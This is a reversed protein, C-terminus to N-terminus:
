EYMLGVPFDRPILHPSCTLYKLGLLELEAYANLVNIKQLEMGSHMVCARSGGFCPYYCPYGFVPVVQIVDIIELDSGVV